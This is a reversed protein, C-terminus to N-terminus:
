GALRYPKNEAAKQLIKQQQARLNEREMELAEAQKAHGAKRAIQAAEEKKAMNASLRKVAETATELPAGSGVHEPKGTPAFEPMSEFKM